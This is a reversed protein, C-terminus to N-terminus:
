VMLRRYPAMAELLAPHPKMGTKSQFSGGNALSITEVGATDRTNYMLIAQQIVAEQVDDPPLLATEPNDEDEPDAYGATYVVQLCRPYLYWVSNIREIKGFLGPAVIFDVGEVLSDEFEFDEPLASAYLQKVSEVSEVPRVALHAYRSQDRDSTPYEAIDEQRRLAGASLGAVREAIASAAVLLQTLLADNATGTESLRTKLDALKALKNAM